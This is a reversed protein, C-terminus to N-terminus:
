TCRGSAPIRVGTRARPRRGRRPGRGPHAGRRADDPQTGGDPGDGDVVVTDVDAGTSAYVFNAVPNLTPAWGPGDTRVVMFDARKGPEISGFLDALGLAHAGGLTAM